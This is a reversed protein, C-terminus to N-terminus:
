RKGPGHSSARGAEQYSAGPRHYALYRSWSESLQGVRRDPTSTARSQCAIQVVALSVHDLGDVDEDSLGRKLDPFRTLVLIDKRFLVDLCIDFVLLTYM